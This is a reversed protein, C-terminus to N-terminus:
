NPLVIVFAATRAVTMSSDPRMVFNVTLKGAPASFGITTACTGMEDGAITTQWISEPIAEGGVVVDCSLTGTTDGSGAVAMGSGSVYVTGAVALEVEMVCEVSTRSALVVVDECHDGESRYFAGTEGDLLDANLNSVLGPSSVKMPPEDGIVILTLASRNPVGVQLVMGGKSVLKTPTLANNKQGLVMYDGNAALGPLASILTVGVVLGALASFFNSRNSVRV